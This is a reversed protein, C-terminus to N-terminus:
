TTEGKTEFATICLPAPIEYTHLLAGLRGNEMAFISVSNSDTNACLLFAEDPSLIFDRPHKGGCSAKQVLQFNIGDATEFVVLSDEGRNSIYLYKGDKSIRIAGATNSALREDPVQSDFTNLLSLRGLNGEWAFVSVTAALENVCYLHEGNPSFVIHRAGHGSPVSVKSIPNLKRDLVYIHDLGLDTVLVFRKNPSLIVCHTHSAEQRKPHIGKGQYTVVTNPLKVVNGSLYNVTYVDTEEVSLHCAVLGHTSLPETADTLKGDEQLALSFVASENGFMQRLLAHLRGNDLTTYMPRDCPLYCRKELTGAETLRFTYLGGKNAITECSSICLITNMDFHLNPIPRTETSPLTMNM